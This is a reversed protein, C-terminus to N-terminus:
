TACMANLASDTLAANIREMTESENTAVITSAGKAEATVMVWVGGVPVDTVVVCDAENVSWSVAADLPGITVNVVVLLGVGPTVTEGSPATDV